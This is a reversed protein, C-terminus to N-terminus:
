RLIDLAVFLPQLLHVNEVMSVVIVLAIILYNKLVMKAVSVFDELEQALTTESLGDLAQVVLSLLHHGNFDDPVLLLELVLGAHLQLNQLVEVEVVFVVLVVDDPDVVVADEALM